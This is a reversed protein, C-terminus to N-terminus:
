TSYLLLPATTPEALMVKLPVTSVELKAPGTAAVVRLALLVTEPVPKEVYKALGGAMPPVAAAAPANVVRLADDVTLPVPKEVYKALGGAMPPVAAAAPDNVVRVVELVM